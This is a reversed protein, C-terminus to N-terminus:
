KVTQDFLTVYVEKQKYILSGKPKVSFPQNSLDFMWAARKDKISAFIIGRSFSWLLYPQIWTEASWGRFGSVQCRKVSIGAFIWLYLHKPSAWFYISHGCASLQIFIVWYEESKTPRHTFFICCSNKEWGFWCPCSIDSSKWWSSQLTTPLESM